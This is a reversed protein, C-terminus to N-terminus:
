GRQIVGNLDPANMPHARATAAAIDIFSEPVTGFFSPPAFDIQLCPVLFRRRQTPPRGIDVGFHDLEQPLPHGDWCDALIWAAV